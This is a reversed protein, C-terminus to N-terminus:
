NKKPFVNGGNLQERNSKVVQLNQVLYDEVAKLMRDINDKTVNYLQGCRKNANNMIEEADQQSKKVIQSESVIQMARLEAERVTKDAQERAQVLIKEKQSLVYRSEQIASPLSKKLEEVLEACHDLNVHSKGFLFNKGKGFEEELEEIIQLVDM